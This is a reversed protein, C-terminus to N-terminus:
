LSAIAQHRQRKTEGSRPEVAGIAQTGIRFRKGRCRLIRARGTERHVPDIRHAGAGPARM